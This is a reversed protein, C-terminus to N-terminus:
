CVPRLLARMAEAISGHARLSQEAEEKTTELEHMIMEVDQIKLVTLNIQDEDNSQNSAFTKSTLAQATIDADVSSVKEPVFDTISNLSQNSDDASKAM